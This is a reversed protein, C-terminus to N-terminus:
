ERMRRLLASGDQRTTSPIFRGYVQFVMALSSHGLMKAVWGPSEGAALANSAFSHRLQYLPRLRLKARKLAPTWVLDRISDISAPSGSETRFVYDRDGAFAGLRLKLAAMSARQQTLADLVPPLLDVDRVSGPTKPSTLRGANLGYSVRLTGTAAQIDGWALAAQESPRMGTWAAVVFWPRWWAPCAGLFVALEEPSLPDVVTKPNAPGKVHVLPSEKIWKVRVAHHLIAKAVQLASNVRAPGLKSGM